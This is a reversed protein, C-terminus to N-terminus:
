PRRWKGAAILRRRSAQSPTVTRRVVSPLVPVPIEVQGSIFDWPVTTGDLLQDRDTM